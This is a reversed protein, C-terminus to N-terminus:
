SSQYDTKEKEKSNRGDRGFMCEEMPVSTNSLPICYCGSSIHDLNIIKGCIEAQDNALDLKIKVKKM